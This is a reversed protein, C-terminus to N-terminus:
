RRMKPGMKYPSKENSKCVSGVGSTQRGRKSDGQKPGTKLNLFKFVLYTVYHVKCIKNGRATEVYVVQKLFVIMVIQLVCARSFVLRSYERDATLLDTLRFLQKICVVRAVFLEDTFCGFLM